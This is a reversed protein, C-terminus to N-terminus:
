KNWNPDADNLHTIFKRRKSLVHISIKQFFHLVWYLKVNPQFPYPDPNAPGRHPDPDPLMISIRGPGSGCCQNHMQYKLDLYHQHWLSTLDHEQSAGESGKNNRAIRRILDIRTTLADSQWHLLQLPGPNSGLM